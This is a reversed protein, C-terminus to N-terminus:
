GGIWKRINNKYQGPQYIYYDDNNLKCIDYELKKIRARYPCFDTGSFLDTGSSRLRLLKILESQKRKLINERKRERYEPSMMFAIEDSLKEIKLKVERHRHRVKILAAVWEFWWKHNFAISIPLLNFYVVEEVVYENKISVTISVGVIAEKKSILRVTGM